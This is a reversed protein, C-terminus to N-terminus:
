WAVTFTNFGEYTVTAVVGKQSFLWQRLRTAETWGYVKRTM